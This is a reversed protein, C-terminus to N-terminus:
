KSENATNPSWHQTKDSILSRKRRMKKKRDSKVQLQVDVLQHHGWHIYALTETGDVPWHLGWTAAATTAATAATAAAAAAAHHAPGATSCHLLWRHVASLAEKRILWLRKKATVGGRAFVRGQAPISGENGFTLM